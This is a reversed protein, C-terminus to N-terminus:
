PSMCRESLSESTRSCCPRLELHKRVSSVEGGWHHRPPQNNDPLSTIAPGTSGAQCISIVLVPFLTGDRPRGDAVTRNCAGRDVGSSATVAELVLGSLPSPLGAPVSMVM